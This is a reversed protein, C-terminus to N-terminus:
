GTEDFWELNPQPKRRAGPAGRPEVDARYVVVENRRNRYAPIGHEDRLCREQAAPQTLGTIRHIEADTLTLRDTM